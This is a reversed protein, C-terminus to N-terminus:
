EGSGEYDIYQPHYHFGALRLYATDQKMRQVFHTFSKGQQPTWGAEAVGMLRPLALHELHDNESVHETWFTAQVGYYRPQLAAPVDVPVPWYDYMKQLNDGGRGAGFDKSNARRNIYYCGDAGWNTVIANLGAEAAMRAGTQCPNWCFVTAGAAKVLSLDAGKATIAENWVAIHKGLAQLHSAIERTFRSQLQSYSTLGEAAYVAQCMANHEWATTPTEDGGVHFLEGPFLPVLESIIDKVFQVAAPNAVNLVDTSIGGDVWVSHEGAPNCSFEPYATMAAALHGPVEVEPVVTIHLSDAYTVVDRIDDQTYFYPGYPKGTWFSGNKLDTNWSNKRVAGVTTLLPYKKIEVRWGQDDTLHWHFVNMKYTAMLRLLKKLEQTTFFHRSVDLMFGRYRFRPADDITVLPLTYTQHTDSIGACVNAPLMKRLSQLAYFLGVTTRAEATIGKTTISLRYGEPDAVSEDRRLNLAGRKGESLKVKLGTTRRLEDAFRAAETQQEQTLGATSIRFSRPLRYVGESTTIQMPWPTLNISQANTTLSLGFLGCIILMFTKM